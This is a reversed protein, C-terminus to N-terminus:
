VLKETVLNVTKLCNKGTKWFKISEEKTQKATLLMYRDFTIDGLKTFAEEM